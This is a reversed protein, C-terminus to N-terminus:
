YSKSQASVTDAAKLSQRLPRALVPLSTKQVIDSYKRFAGGYKGREKGLAQGSRLRVPFIYISENEQGKGLPFDSLPKKTPNLNRLSLWLPKEEGAKPNFFFTSRVISL